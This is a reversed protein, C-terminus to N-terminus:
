KEDDITLARPAGFDVIGTGALADGFATVDLLRAACGGIRERGGCHWLQEWVPALAPDHVGNLVLAGRFEPALERLLARAAHRVASPPWGAGLLQTADFAIISCSLLAPLHAPAPERAAAATGNGIAAGMTTAHSGHLLARALVTDEEDEEDGAGGAVGASCSEQGRAASGGVWLTRVEVAPVASRLAAAAAREEGEEGAAEGAPALLRNLRALAVCLAVQQGGGSDAPGDEPLLELALVTATGRGAAALAFASAGMGAGVVAMLKGDERDAGARAALAALLASWEVGGPAEFASRARGAAASGEPLLFRALRRRQQAEDGAAKLLLSRRASHIGHPAMSGAGGHAGEGEEDEEDGAGDGGGTAAAAEAAAAARAARVDQEGAAPFPAEDVDHLLAALAAGGGDAGSGGSGGSGDSGGDLLLRRHAAEIEARDLPGDRLLGATRPAAAAAGLALVPWGDTGISPKPPPRMVTRGGAEHAVEFTAAAAALVEGEAGVEGGTPADAGGGATSGGGGGGRVLKVRLVHRGEALRALVLPPSFPFDRCIEFAAEATRYLSMVTGGEGGAVAEEHHLSVCVQRGERREEAGAGGARRAAATIPAESGDPAVALVRALIALRTAGQSWPVRQGHAPSDIRVALHASGLRRVFAASCADGDYRTGRLATPRQRQAGAGGDGAGGVGGLGGAGGAAAEFDGLTVRHLGSSGWQIQVDRGMAGGWACGAASGGACNPAAFSGNHLLHVHAWGNWLWVTGALWAECAARDTAGACGLPFPPLPSPPPPPSPESSPLQASVAAGCCLWALLLLM